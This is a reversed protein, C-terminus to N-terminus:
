KGIQQTFYPLSLRLGEELSVQPQWHLLSMALSIDPRRLTPDDAPREIYVISSTSSTIKKIINALELITFEGPNGLNIPGAERSGMMLILGAVMDSVYCFSRTQTGDGHILLDKGSLAESIFNSVVRGDGPYMNPGYTNFIRVVKTDLKYLRHYTFILSEAFRKGGDYCSRIGNPNVNGWYTERQPHEKPDGYVESTSTQLFKAKKELALDLLNKVGASCVMLTEVPKNQYGVPSAICALNYIENIEEPITLPEIIDHKILTFRDSERLNVINEERGSFFNDVCIVRNGTGILKGCLHSGIFGAGGTVLITKMIKASM